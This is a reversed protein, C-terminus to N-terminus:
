YGIKCANNRFLSPDPDPDQLGLLSFCTSGSGRCKDYLISSLPSLLPAIKLNQSPNEAERNVPLAEVNYNM